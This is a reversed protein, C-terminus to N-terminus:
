KDLEKNARIFWALYRFLLWGILGGIMGGIFSEINM